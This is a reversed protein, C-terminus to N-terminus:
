VGPRRRRRPLAAGDIGLLAYRLGSIGSKSQCHHLEGSEPEQMLRVRRERAPKVSAHFEISTTAFLQADDRPCSFQEDGKPLECAMAGDNLTGDELVDLRKGTKLKTPSTAPPDRHVFRCGRQRSIGGAFFPRTRRRRGSPNPSNTCSGHAAVTHSTPSTLM